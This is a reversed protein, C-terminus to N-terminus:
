GTKRRKLMRLFSKGTKLAFRNRSIFNDRLESLGRRFAVTSQYSLHVPYAKTPAIPEVVVRVVLDKPGDVRTECILSGNMREFQTDRGNVTVREIRTAEPLRRIFRFDIACRDDHKFHFEDTFFRVDHRGDSVKRRLHTRIVTEALSTWRLGPRLKAVEAAFAETGAPGNKFFDHHEVLIAPKGLFLGMAFVSANGWYHRKFVPFGYFSDQAPALLDAGRIEPTKLNRPMCATNVLGLFQRSDAFARMAELSYQEQPCVMLPEYAM